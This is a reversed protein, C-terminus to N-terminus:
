SPTRRPGEKKVWADGGRWTCRVQRKAKAAFPRAGPSRGDTIVEAQRSCTEIAACRRQSFERGPNAAPIAQPGAGVLLIRVGYNRGRRSVGRWRPVPDNDGGMADVAITIMPNVKRCSRGARFRLVCWRDHGKLAQCLSFRTSSTTFRGAKTTGLSSLGRHPQKMEHCNRVSAMAPAICPEHARRKNRAAKSQRSKQILCNSVGPNEGCEAAVCEALEL